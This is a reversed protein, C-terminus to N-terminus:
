NRALVKTRFQKGVQIGIENSNWIHDSNYNHQSYMSQLKKYFYNCSNPTLGQTICIEQGEVWQISVKPHKCKFQYWWSNGLIGDCFLPFSKNTNVKCSEDKTTTRYHITSMIANNIDMCDNNCARKIYVHVCGQGMNKFEIKGNLHNSFYNIPVNWSRNARRLSHRKKLLM